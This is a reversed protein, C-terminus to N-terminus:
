CQFRTNRYPETCRGSLSFRQLLGHRRQSLSHRPCLRDGNGTRSRGAGTPWNPWHTGAPRTSRCRRCAGAPRHSGTGGSRGSYGTAGAAGSYGTPGASGNRGTPHYLEAGSETAHRQQDCPGRYGTCRHHHHRNHHHGSLDTRGTPLFLQAYLLFEWLGALQQRLQQLLLRVFLRYQPLYEYCAGKKHIPRRM